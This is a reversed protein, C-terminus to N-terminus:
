SYAGHRPLPKPVAQALLAVDGELKGDLVLNGHTLGSYCPAGVPVPSGDSGRACAGGVGVGLVRELIGHDGRAGHVDHFAVQSVCFTAPVERALRLGQVALDHM